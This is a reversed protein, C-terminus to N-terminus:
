LTLGVSAALRASRNGAAIVVAAASIAGRDTVVGRVTDREVDLEMVEAPAVVRARSARALGITLRRPDLWGDGARFRAQLVGECLYPFRRRLEEGAILEVDDLGWGRQREVLARQRAATAEDTAVWLYGGTELGLDYGALGTEDAFSLFFGVSERVVALEEPNDFQLRFAGTAAATSWTGLAPRREVIVVALGARRAFFALAAGAVGGGVIVLDATRPPSSEVRPAAAAM